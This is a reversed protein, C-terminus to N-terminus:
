CGLTCNYEPKTCDLTPCFVAVADAEVGGAVGQLRTAELSRLTERSLSLRKPSAKKM